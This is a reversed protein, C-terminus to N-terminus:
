SALAIYTPKDGFVKSTFEFVGTGDHLVFSPKAKYLIHRLQKKLVKLHDCLGQITKFNLLSEDDPDYIYLRRGSDLLKHEAPSVWLLNDFRNM